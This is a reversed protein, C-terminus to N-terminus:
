YKTSISTDQGCRTSLEDLVSEEHLTQRSNWQYKLSPTSTRTSSPLTSSVHRCRRVGRPPDSSQEVPLRVLQHHSRGPRSEGLLVVYCWCYDHSVFDHCIEKLPPKGMAPNLPTGPVGLGGVLLPGRYGVLGNM